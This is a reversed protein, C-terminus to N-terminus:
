VSRVLMNSANAGAAACGCTRECTQVQKCSEVNSYGMREEGRCGMCRRPVEEAGGGPVEAGGRCLMSAEAGGRGERM